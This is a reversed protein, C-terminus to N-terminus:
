LLETVGAGNARLAVDGTGHAILLGSRNVTAVEPNSVSWRIAIEPREAGSADIAVAQHRVAAGVFYRDGTSGSIAVREIPPFDVVVPISTRVRRASLVMAFIEYEGGRTAKAGSGDRNVLLDGRASSFFRVPEDLVNGAADYVTATLSVSDGVQLHLSEQQIVVRAPEQAAISVSGFAVLVSAIAISRFLMM